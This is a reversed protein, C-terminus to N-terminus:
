QAQLRNIYEILALIRARVYAEPDYPMDSYYEAAQIRYAQGWVPMDRTGHGAVEQSGAIIEYMQAVPLIGGNNKALITLDSAKRTLYSATPGDGRGATGHCTACKGEYEIKGIDVRKPQVPSAAQQAAAMAGIGLLSASVLLMRVFSFRKM